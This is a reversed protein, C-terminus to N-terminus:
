SDRSISRSVLIPLRSVLNSLIRDLSPSSVGGVDFIETLVGFLLLSTM